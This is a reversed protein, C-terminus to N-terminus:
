VAIFTRPAGIRRGSPAERARKFRGGAFRGLQLIEAECRKWVLGTVRGRIGTRRGAATAAIWKGGAVARGKANGGTNSGSFTAAQYAPPM